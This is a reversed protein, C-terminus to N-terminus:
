FESYNNALDDRKTRISEVLMSVEARRRKFRPHNRLEYCESLRELSVEIDARINDAECSRDAYERESEAVLEAARDGAIAADREDTYVTGFYVREDNMTQRYGAIFRGHSLRAVIGIVAEDCDSDACWGKHVIARPAVEHADRENRFQEGSQTYWNPTGNDIRQSLMGHAAAWDGFGYRRAARWDALILSPPMNAGPATTQAALMRLIALRAYAGGKNLQLYQPAHTRNM